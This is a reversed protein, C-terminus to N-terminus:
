PHIPFAAVRFGSYGLRYGPLNGYRCACRVVQLNYNFSGGRLVRAESGGEAERGDEQSYPYGKWISHTWEWVNGVMDVAGYPSDGQPSYQGVPTTDKVHMNFNCRSADPQSDGWPWENGYEGRAAKEWEAETPLRYGWGAPLEGGHVQNLWACYTQADLWSIQVAPHNDKGSLDSKPGRPHQWDAGQTEKWEEGDYAWGSGKEEATTRFGSAQVFAAFQANTVPTRGIWYESPLEVTHQPKENDFALPDDEKSGMLFKGAPVRVFELGGWTRRNAGETLPTEGKAAERGVGTRGPAIEPEGPVERAPLAKAPPAALHLFADLTQADFDEGFAQIQRLVRRLRRSEKEYDQFTRALTEDSEGGGWRLADQIFKHRLELDDIDFIRAKFAAPAARLLASWRIFDERRVGQAQGSNVLMRWQLEIDNLVAKVRRPNVEAAAILTQWQALLEEGVPQSKLYEQMAQAVVPPLEFRLQIIKDLYDSAKQGTVQPNQYYKEVAQGVVDTDAGLVFICGPRDLFLKVAELVQVTKDPLCRDLDDIFVVLVGQRPDIKKYDLKHHVWAAMLRDFAEDFQDLLATKESLATPKPEGLGPKIELGPVQITFWGLVTNVVDRRPNTEDLLKAIVKHVTSDDAMAQVVVRVLAVLLEDEDAYKWANFWVTRCVRFQDEINEDPNAFALQAPKTRELLSRTGDLQRQVRRLLTTKGAGWSGSVGITLPTKTSRDAILRALTVAFEEFHFDAREDEQELPADSLISPTEYPRKPSEPM